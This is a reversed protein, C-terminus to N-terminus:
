IQELGVIGNLVAYVTLASVSKMGLKDTINKRHSVVTTISIDLMDAIEKNIFGRAVLGLVQTERETLPGPSQQIKHGEKHGSRHIDGFAKMLAEEDSSINISRFGAKSIANGEAEMSVLAITVFPLSSFFAAEMFLIKANVFCHVFRRRGSDLENRFSKVDKYLAVQAFPAAGTLLTRLGLATIYSPEIVAISYQEMNM